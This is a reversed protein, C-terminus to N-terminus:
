SSADPDCSVPSLDIREIRQPAGQRSIAWLEGDHRVHRFCHPGDEGLAAGFDFCYWPDDWSWFAELCQGDPFQFVVSDEDTRYSERGWLAGGLSYWVTRGATLSRWERPGIEVGHLAAEAGPEPALDAPQESAAASAAALAFLFSAPFRRMDAVM